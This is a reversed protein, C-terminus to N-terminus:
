SRSGEVSPGDFLPADHSDAAVGDAQDVGFKGVREGRDGGVGDVVVGFGFGDALGEIGSNPLREVGEGVVNVVESASRADARGRAADMGAIYGRASELATM